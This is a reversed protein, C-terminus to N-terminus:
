DIKVAEFNISYVRTAKTRGDAVKIKWDEVLYGKRVLEGIHQSLATKSKFNM